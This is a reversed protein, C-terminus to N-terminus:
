EPHTLLTVRDPLLTVTFQPALLVEESLVPVTVTEPSPILETTFTVWDPTGYIVNDGEPKLKASDPPLWVTVISVFVALWDTV